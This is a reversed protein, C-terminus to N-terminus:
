VRSNYSTVDWQVSKLRFDQMFVKDTIRTFTANEYLPKLKRAELKAKKKYEAAEIRDREIKAVREAAEKVAQEKKEAAMKILDDATLKMFSSLTTDKETGVDEVQAAIALERAEIAAM